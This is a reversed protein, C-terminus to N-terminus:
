PFRERAEVISFSGVSGFLFEDVAEAFAGNRFVNRFDRKFVAAFGHADELEDFFGTQRRGGTFGAAIDGLAANM